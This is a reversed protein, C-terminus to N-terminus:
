WYEHFDFTVYTVDQSNYKLVNDIYADGIVKEKGSLEVLTIVNILKYLSVQEDFHKRFAEHTEVEGTEDMNFMDKPDSGDCVTPLKSKWDTVTDKNVDGREWSMTGLVINNGKLFLALWGTLAKFNIDGPDSMFKLAQTCLIPGSVPMRRATMDEFWEYVLNNVDEHVTVRRVRNRDGSVNNEIDEFVEAKRKLINQIQTKGVGMEEAIRHASKNKSLELVRARDDLKLVKRKSM